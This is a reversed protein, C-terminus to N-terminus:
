EKPPAGRPGGQASPLPADDVSSSAWANQKVTRWIDPRDTTIVMFAGWKPAVAEFVFDGRMDQSADKYEWEALRNVVGRQGVPEEAFVGGRLQTWHQIYDLINAYSVDYRRFPQLRSDSPSKFNTEYALVAGGVRWVQVYDASDQVRDGGMGPPDGSYYSNSAVQPMWLVELFRDRVEPKLNTVIFRPTYPTKVVLQYLQEYPTSALIVGLTDVWNKAYRNPDQDPKQKIDVFIIPPVGDLKRDGAKFILLTDAGSLVHSPVIAGFRDRQRLRTLDATKMDYIRRRDTPPAETLRPLVYDHSMVVGDASPMFDVESSVYGNASIRFYGPKSNEPVDSVDGFGWYGRHPLVILDEVRTWDPQKIVRLAECTPATPERYCRHLVPFQNSFTGAAASLGFPLLAPGDDRISPAQDAVAPFAAALLVVLTLCTLRGSKM